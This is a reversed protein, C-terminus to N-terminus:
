SQRLWGFIEKLKPPNGTMLIGVRFVKGAAKFTLWITAILLITTVIYEWMEPPGAARNMMTFPTFLPIFSMVKAVMGNPEKTIFVMAILPVMLVIMVPQMLNQAEKITNCVSGIAVLVAAYLLFGGIFYFLFSLLYGSNGIAAILVQVGKGGEGLLMPAFWAALLAFVVWTGVMTLGTLAIGFIKGHMLQNPSVSSLLVEIIRNSKEEVTNTLLLNAISFIAIWLFYVFGMPSWQDAIDKDEVDATGGDKTSKKATFKVREQIHDAVSKKIGEAKIRDTRVLETLTSQYGDRLKDNTQNDCIFRFDDLTKLPDKGLVFFGFLKGSNVAKSLAAELKAHDTENIGLEDPDVYEYQRSTTMGQIRAQVEAPQNYMWNLGALQFEASPEEGEQPALAALEALEERVEGAKKQALIERQLAGMDDKRFAREARDGLGEEGLDIVAYRQVESFKHILAGVGISAAILVPVIIIGLWFTKTRVNELYERQAVLWTKSAM